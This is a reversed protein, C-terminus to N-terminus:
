LNTNCEVRIHNKVETYNIPLITDPNIVIPLGRM